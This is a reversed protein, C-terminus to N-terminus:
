VDCADAESQLMAWLRQRLAELEPGAQPVSSKFLLQQSMGDAGSNSSSGGQQHSGAQQQAQEQQQQQPPPQSSKTAAAATPLRLGKGRAAAAVAPNVVQQQLEQPWSTIDYYQKHLGVQDM